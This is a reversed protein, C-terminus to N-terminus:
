KRKFKLPAKPNTVVAAACSLWNHDFDPRDCDFRKRRSHEEKQEQFEDL